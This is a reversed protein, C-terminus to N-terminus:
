ARAKRRQQWLHEGLVLAWLGAGFVDSIFGFFLGRSLLAVALVALISVFTVSTTYPVHQERRGEWITPIVALSLIVNCVTIIGDAWPDILELM